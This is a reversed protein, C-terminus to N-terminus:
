RVHTSVWNAPLRHEPRDSWRRAREEAIQRERRISGGVHWEVEEAGFDAKLRGPIHHVADWVAMLEMDQIAPDDVQTDYEVDGICVTVTLSGVSWNVSPRPAILPEVLPFKGLKRWLGARLASTLSPYGVSVVSMVPTQLVADPDALSRDRRRFFGIAKEPTVQGYYIWGAAGTVAYLVGVSMDVRAAPKEDFM